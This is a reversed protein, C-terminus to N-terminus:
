SSLRMRLRFHRAPLFDASSAIGIECRNIDMRHMDGGFRM